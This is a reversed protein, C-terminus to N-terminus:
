YQTDVETGQNGFISGILNVKLSYLRCILEIKTDNKETKM